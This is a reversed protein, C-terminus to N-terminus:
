GCRTLLLESFETSEVIAFIFFLGSWWASAIKDIRGWVSSDLEFREAASDPDLVVLPLAVTLPAAFTSRPVIFRLGRWLFSIM